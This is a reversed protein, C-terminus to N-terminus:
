TTEASVAGASNPPGPALSSISIAGRLPRSCLANTYPRTVAPTLSVLCCPDRRIRPGNHRADRGRVGHHKGDGNRLVHGDHACLRGEVQAIEDSTIEGARYRAWVTPLRHVRWAKGRSPTRDVYSRHRAAGGASRRVGRGDAPGTCHQRVRRDARRCGDASGPDDGGHGHGHPQPVDPRDPNLFIDSLSTTPFPVPLAGAALVGRSVAAVLEPMARHCNNFGSGTEVIGVIPSDIM